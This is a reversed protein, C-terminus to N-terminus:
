PLDKLLRSFLRMSADALGEITAPKLVTGQYSLYPIEQHLMSNQVVSYSKETESSIAPLLFVM